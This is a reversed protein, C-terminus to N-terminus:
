NDGYHSWMRLIKIRKNREDIEYFLRHQINIRRSYMGVYSGKLKKYPPPTKLPDHKILDLLELCSVKHNSQTIKKFDRKADHTYYLTYM